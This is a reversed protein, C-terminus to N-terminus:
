FVQHASWEVEADSASTQGRFNLNGDADWSFQGSANENDACELAWTGLGNTEISTLMAECIESRVTVKMRGAIRGQVVLKLGSVPSNDLPWNGTLRIASFNRDSAKQSAVKHERIAIPDRPHIRIAAIFSEADAARLPGTRNGCYNGSIVKHGGHSLQAADIYKIIFVCSFQSSEAIVYKFRGIDNGSHGQAVTTLSGLYSEYRKVYDALRLQKTFIFNGSLRTYYLEVFRSGSSRAGFSAQLSSNGLKDIEYFFQKSAQALFPAQLVVPSEDEELELSMDVPAYRKGKREAFGSFRSYAITLADGLKIAQTLQDSYLMNILQRDIESLENLEQTYSLISNLRHPHGAFGLSHMGEHLLCSAEGDTIAKRAVVIDVQRLYGIMIHGYNTYCRTKIGQTILLPEDKVTIRLQQDSANADTRLDIAALRYLQTLETVISKGLESDKNEGTISLRVPEDQDWRVMNAQQAVPHQGSYAIGVGYTAEAFGMTMSTRDPVTVTQCSILLISSALLFASRLSKGLSNQSIKKSNSTKM